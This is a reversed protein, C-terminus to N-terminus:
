GFGSAVVNTSNGQSSVNRKEESRHHFLRTISRRECDKFMNLHFPKGPNMRRMKHYVYAFSLQDRSTFRDVENFWLCSFLNSMPTHERVIFSGEPVNSPLLNSPDSGNFRKLGDGQYFLFQMDISTPDYKNLKKNQAVEEWVCHRDYHNSIAYEYDQRWLFYELIMFPDRQLRLKSDLWISYRARPFIRHALFKPVKGVRRMDSYPLNKVVVIKWLGIFGRSDPIQGELSLMQLTNEDTFMVFCVRKRSLSTIMELSPSRLFDSNGFICSSVAIHCSSMFQADVEEMEFGTGSSGVPGKVFGCNLKKDSVYFSDEREEFTQHGAFRPEWQTQGEPREEVETYQLSFKSFRPSESPEVLQATSNLFKMECPPGSRKSRIPPRRLNTKKEISIKKIDRDKPTSVRKPRGKKNKRKPIEKPKSTVVKDVNVTNPQSRKNGSKEESGEGNAQVVGIKGEEDHKKFEAIGAERSYQNNSKVEETGLGVVESDLIGKKKENWPDNESDIDVDDDGDGDDVDVDGDVNDKGDTERDGRHSNKLDQDRFISDSGFDNIVRYSEIQTGVVQLPRNRNWFIGLVSDFRGKEGNYKNLDQYEHIRHYSFITILAVVPLFLLSFTFLIMLNSRERRGGVGGGGSRRSRLFGVKQQGNSNSRSNTKCDGLNSESVYGRSLFRESASQRLQAM